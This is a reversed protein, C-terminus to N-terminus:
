FPVSGHARFPLREKSAHWVRQLHEMSVVRLETFTLSPILTMFNTFLRIPQSTVTVPRLDSHWKVNTLPLSWIASYFGRISWFSRSHRNWTNWSTDRNSYSVALRRARLIFYEYSSCAQAYRILQSIFVGYAPTVVFLSGLRFVLWPYSKTASYHSGPRLFLHKMHLIVTRPDM